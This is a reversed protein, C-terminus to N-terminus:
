SYDIIAWTAFLVSQGGVQVLERSFPCPLYPLLGCLPNAMSVTNRHTKSIM